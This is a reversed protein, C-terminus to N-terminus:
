ALKVLPVRLHADDHKMVAHCMGGTDAFRLQNTAHELARLAAPEAAADHEDGRVLRQVRALMQQQRAFPAVADQILAMANAAWVRADRQQTLLQEAYMADHECPVDACGQMRARQEARGM